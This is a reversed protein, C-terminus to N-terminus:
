WGTSRAVDPKMVFITGGNVIAIRRGDPSWAPAFEQDCGPTGGTFLRRQGSGDPNMVHVVGCYGGRPESIFAIKSSGAAASLSPRAAIGSSATQSQASRGLLAFLVVGVLAVVTIV